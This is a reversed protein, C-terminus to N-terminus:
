NLIRILHVTDGMLVCFLCVNSGSCRGAHEITKDPQQFQSVTDKLLRYLSVTFMTLPCIKLCGLGRSM